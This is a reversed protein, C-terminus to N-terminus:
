QQSPSIDYPIRKYKIITRTKPKVIPPCSFPLNSIQKNIELEKTKDSLKKSMVDLEKRTDELIKNNEATRAEIDKLQKLLRSKELAYQNAYESQENAKQEIAFYRAKWKNSTQDIDYATALLGINM